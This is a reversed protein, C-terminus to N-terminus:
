GMYRMEDQLKRRRKIRDTTERVFLVGDLFSKKKAGFVNRKDSLEDVLFSQAKGDTYQL